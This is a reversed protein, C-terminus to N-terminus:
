LKTEKMLEQLKHISCVNRQGCLTCSQAEIYKEKCSEPIETKKNYYSTIIYGGIIVVMFLIGYFIHM